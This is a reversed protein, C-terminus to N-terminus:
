SKFNVSPKSLTSTLMVSFCSGPEVPRLPPFIRSVPVNGLAQQDNRSSITLKVLLKTASKESDVFRCQVGLM